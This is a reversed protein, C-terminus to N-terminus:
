PTSRCEPTGVRLDDSKIWTVLLEDRGQALRPYQIGMTVGVTLSPSLSGTADVRRLRVQPQKNVFETSSVAVSGDALLEADVHGTASGEDIRIPRDFSRGADHSFAVFTQGEGTAATFWRWRSTRGRATM